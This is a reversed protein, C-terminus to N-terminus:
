PLELKEVSTIQTWFYAKKMDEGETNKICDYRRLNAPVIIGSFKVEDEIKLDSLTKFLSSEPDIALSDEMLSTGFEIEDGVSIDIHGWGALDDYSGRAGLSTIRGTWNKIKLNEPLVSCIEEGRKKLFYQMKMENEVQDYELRLKNITAIFSVQIPPMTQKYNDVVAPTTDVKATIEPASPEKTDEGSSRGCGVISAAILAMMVFNRTELRM